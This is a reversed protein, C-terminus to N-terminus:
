AKRAASPPSCAATGHDSAVSRSAGEKLISTDLPAQWGALHHLEEADDLRYELDSGVGAVYGDLSTGGSSIMRPM